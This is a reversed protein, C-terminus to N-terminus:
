SPTDASAVPGAGHADAFIVRHGEQALQLAFDREPTSAPEGPADCGVILTADDIPFGTLAERPHRCVCIYPMRVGARAAVADFENMPTATEVASSGAPLIVPVILFINAISATRLRAEDLARATGGETTAIVYIAPEGTQSAM